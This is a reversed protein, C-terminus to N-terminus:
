GELPVLPRLEPPIVPVVSLVMWEPRNTSKKFSEIVRLRKLAETKRQHSSEEKVQRRLENSVDQVDTHKLLEVIAEGGIKALFTSEEDQEGNSESLESMINFYEEESILEKPKLGSNGPDIVVYSEYYIVKELEKVSMGLIYGIKSPLSKWFWIHVVPVALSIHGMRERRVSKTTVEVGCRDCIIGKYRIRKYKGCHCEWDRVPGFIKECFLGDKEPKFSRYNITEPKTVEGFSRELIKDSSALSISIAEFNHRPAKEQRSFYAM